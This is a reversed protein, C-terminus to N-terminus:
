TRCALPLVGKATYRNNSSFHAKLKCLEQREKPLSLLCIILSYNKGALQIAPDPTVTVTRSRLLLSTLDAAMRLPPHQASPQILRVRGPPARDNPAMSWARGDTTSRHFLRQQPCTVKVTTRGQAIKGASIGLAVRRCGRMTLPTCRYRATDSIVVKARYNLARVSFSVTQRQEATGAWGPGPRHTPM